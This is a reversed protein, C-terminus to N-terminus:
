ADRRVGELDWEVWCEVGGLDDGSEGMKRGGMKYDAGFCIDSVLWGPGVDWEELGDEGTDLEAASYM